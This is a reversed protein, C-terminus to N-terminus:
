LLRLYDLTSMAVIVEEGLELVQGAARSVMSRTAFKATAVTSTDDCGSNIHDFGVGFQIEIVGDATIRFAGFCSLCTSVVKFAGVAPSWHAVFLLSGITIWSVSAEKATSVWSPM